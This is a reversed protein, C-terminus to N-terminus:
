KLRRMKPERYGADPQKRRISEDQVQLMAEREADARLPYIWRDKVSETKRDSWNGNGTPPPRLRHWTPAWIWNSAKYLAGTHGVSPDSYSVITTVAPRNFKLWAAVQSWQYSGENKAHGVLCWRILELWRQQPLRRSSPNAFVPELSFAVEQAATAIGASILRSTIVGM